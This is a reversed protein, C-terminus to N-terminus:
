GPPVRVRGSKGGPLPAAVSAGLVAEWPALTLEYVLDDGEVRYDPHAALRVRLYLDGAPGGGHGEEGHGAARLRQGERVGAPIRMRITRTTTEGTRPD